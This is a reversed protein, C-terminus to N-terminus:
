KAALNAACPPLRQGSSRNRCPEPSRAALIYPLRSAHVAWCPPRGGRNGNIITEDALTDGFALSTLSAGNPKNRHPGANATQGSRTNIHRSSLLLASVAGPVQSQAMGSRNAAIAGIQPPPSISKTNSSRPQFLASANYTSPIKANEHRVSGPLEPPSDSRITSAAFFSRSDRSTVNFWKLPPSLM